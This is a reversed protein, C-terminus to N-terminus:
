GVTNGAFNPTNELSNKLHNAVLDFVQDPPTTAPIPTQALHYRVFDTGTEAAGLAISNNKENHAVVVQVNVATYFGVALMGFLVLFIMALIATAGRRASINKRMPARM